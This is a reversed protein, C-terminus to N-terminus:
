PREPGDVQVSQRRNRSAHTTRVVGERDFSTESERKAVSVDTPNAALRSWAPPRCYHKEASDIHFVEDRNLSSFAISAQRRTHQQKQSQDQNKAGWRPARAPPRRRSPAVVVEVRAPWVLQQRLEVIYANEKGETAAQLIKLPWPRFVHHCCTVHPPLPLRPPRPPAAPHTAYFSFTLSSLITKISHACRLSQNWWGWERRSCDWGGITM